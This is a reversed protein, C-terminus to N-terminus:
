FVALFNVFTHKKKRMKTIKKVYVQFSNTRKVLFITGYPEM